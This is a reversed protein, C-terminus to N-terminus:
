PGAQAPGAFIAMAMAALTLLTRIRNQTIM